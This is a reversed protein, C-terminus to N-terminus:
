STLRFSRLGNRRRSVFSRPGDEKEEDWFSYCELLIWSVCTSVTEPTPSVKWARYIEEVIDVDKTPDGDRDSM